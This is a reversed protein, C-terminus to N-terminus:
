ANRYTINASLLYKHCLQSFDADAQAVDDRPSRHMERGYVSRLFEFEVLAALRGSGDFRAGRGVAPAAVQRISRCSGRAV